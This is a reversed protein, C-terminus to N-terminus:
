QSLVDEGHEAHETNDEGDHNLAAYHYADGDAGTAAYSDGFPQSAFTGEVSHNYTTRLRETGLWDQHQFHTAGGAYFAVPKSGWYYQGQLQARTSGNWTSARQGSTNFVFETIASGVTSRVRQDLANYVYKATAGSAGVAMIRGEADYTYSNVGDSTM